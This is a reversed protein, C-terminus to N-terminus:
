MFDEIMNLLSRTNAKGKLHLCKVSGGVCVGQQSLSLSFPLLLLHSPFARVSVCVCLCVCINPLLLEGDVRGLKTEM